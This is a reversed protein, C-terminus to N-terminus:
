GILLPVDRSPEAGIHAFRPANRLLRLAACAAGYGNDINVTVIGPSCSALIANLAAHGGHAVGYGVSTPVAIIASAILGGLVTPLAADMGAVAIIVPFTRIADLRSTLRWLGAVGVDMFLVSDVGNFTLTRAAERAVSADSSGAAVIGVLPEKRTQANSGGFYATQSTPCYDMQDAWRASVLAFKDAALRTVLLNTQREHAASFITELQEPSKGQAFIAEDLGIRDRRDFDLKVEEGASAHL